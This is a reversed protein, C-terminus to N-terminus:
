VMSLPQFLRKSKLSIYDPAGASCVGIALLGARREFQNSSVLMQPLAEFLPTVVQSPPLEGALVALLRLALSPPSNEENENEEDENELEDEVDIEGSAVKLAVLTIQPGLKNSSIKSKRYSICSILFQLGFVRYEEDLQNNTVMESIIQVM